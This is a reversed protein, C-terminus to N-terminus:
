LARKRQNKKLPVGKGEGIQGPKTRKQTNIAPDDAEGANEEETDSKEGQDLASIAAHITDLGGGVQEKQKKKFRRRQTKSYPSEASQVGTAIDLVMASRSQCVFSM